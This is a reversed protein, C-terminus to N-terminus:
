VNAHFYYAPLRVLIAVLLSFPASLKGQGRTGARVTTHIISLVYVILHLDVVNISRDSFRDDQPYLTTSSQKRKDKM